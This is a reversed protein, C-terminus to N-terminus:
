KEVLAMKVAEVMNDTYHFTLGKRYIENIEEVDRKNESCIVIDTIGARKAALIKEKIGGVPLLKGRLTIEGTMALNKKVKRHLFASTMATLITIGASPGDKPTAGEPVHMHVAHKDIQKSDLGLEKTHSKLFELALAASEKMVQGLNGTLALRSVKSPSLGVEIFLIEGGVSTWALGTVVGCVDNGQYKDHQVRPIGLLGELDAISIAPNYPTETAIKCAIKRMIKAIVRELSRVGSECTYNDIIYRLVSKSLKVQARKIGHEKLQKPVLFKSAIEVKEEAIYGNVEILEMRDLLPRPVTSLTNATAIFMVKSLDYDIDLFNDHFASNQEPDLVELLASAPDGHIDSDIKDIEDLVFVPNSTGAKQLAQIIRGPMAGVYTRRHGRIEAEDHVGGLSVRVYKRGLSEAISKGLSTKGVGPPGYLCIIPAKLNNRLKLVALHEIIREKVKELGFHDHDLIKQAKKLDFNDESYENWPLDLLTEIYNQQVSYDPSQTPTKQLKRLEKQFIEETKKDWKKKKAQKRYEITPDLDFDDDEGSESKLENQITKMQEQLIFERQKRDMKQRVKSEIDAAVALRQLEDQLMEDLEEARKALDNVELLHQQAIGKLQLNNAAFNILAEPDKFNDLTMVMENPIAPSRKIIEKTQAKINKLLNKFEADDPVQPKAFVIVSGALFPRTQTLAALQARRRGQLIVVIKSGLDIIRLVRAVTGIKFLDDFKPSEVHKEHQMLALLESQNEFAKRVVKLSSNREITIPLVQMPFICSNRLPLVPLLDGSNCRVENPDDNPDLEIVESHVNAANQAILDAREAEQKMIEERQEIIKKRQSEIKNMLEEVSLEKEDKEM